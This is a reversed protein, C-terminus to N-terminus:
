NEGAASNYWIEISIVWGALKKDDEDTGVQDSGPLTKLALHGWTDDSWIATYVDAQGLIASEAPDGTGTSGRFGGEIQVKLKTMWESEDESNTTIVAAGPIINLGITEDKAWPATRMIFVASGDKATGQSLDSNWDSGGDIAKFRAAMAQLIELKISIPKSM